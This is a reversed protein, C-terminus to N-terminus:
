TIAVFMLLVFSFLLLLIAYQIAELLQPRFSDTVIYVLKMATMNSNPYIRFMMAMVIFMIAFIFLVSSIIDYFSYTEEVEIEEEYPTLENSISNMSSGLLQIDEDITWWEDETNFMINLHESDGSLYPYATVYAIGDENTDVNWEEYNGPQNFGDFIDDDTFLDNPSFGNEVTIQEDTDRNMTNIPEGNGDTLEIRLQVENEILSLESGKRLQNNIALDDQRESVYEETLRTFPIVEVYLNTEKVNRVTSIELDEKNWTANGAISVNQVPTDAIIEFQNPQEFTREGEDAPEYVSELPSDLLLSHVSDEEYNIEEDELEDEDLYDGTYIYNNYVLCNREDNADYACNPSSIPLHLTEESNYNSIVNVDYENINSDIGNDSPLLHAQTPMIGTSEPPEDGYDFCSGILDSIGEGCNEDINEIGDWSSDRFFWYNWKSTFKSVPEDLDITLLYDLEPQNSVDEPVNDINIDIDITNETGHVYESIDEDRIVTNISSRDTSDVNPIDIQNGEIEFNIDPQTGFDGSSWISLYVDIDETISQNLTPEYEEDFDINRRNDITQQTGIDVQENYERNEVQINGGRTISSFLINTWRNSDINENEIDVYIRSEDQFNAIQVEFDDTNPGKNSAFDKIEKTETHRETEYEITERDDIRTNVEDPYVDNPSSCGDPAVDSYSEDDDDDLVDDEDPCPAYEWYHETTIKEYRPTMEKHVIIEDINDMGDIALDERNYEIKKYGSETTEFTYIIDTVDTSQAVVDIKYEIEVKEYEWSYGNQDDPDPKDGEFDQGSEPKDGIAADYVIYIHGEDGIIKEWENGVENQKPVKVSPEIKNIDLYSHRAIIGSEPNDLILSTGFIEDEVEYVNYKEEEFRPSNVEDVTEGHYEDQYNSFMQEHYSELMNPYSQVSESTYRYLPPTELLAIGNRIVPSDHEETPRNLQVVVNYEDDYNDIDVTESIEMMENSSTGEIDIIDVIENDTNYIQFLINTGMPVDVIARLTDVELDRDVSSVIGQNRDFEVSHSEEGSSIELDQNASATVYEYLYIDDRLVDFYEDSTIMAQENYLLTYEENDEDLISSGDELTIEEFMSDWDLPTDCPEQQAGYTPQYTTTCTSYEAYSIPFMSILIFLTLIISIVLAYKKM